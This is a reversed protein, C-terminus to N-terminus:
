EGAEDDILRLEIAKKMARTLAAHLDVLRGIGIAVGKSTPRLQGKENTFYQRVDIINKDQYTSLTTVIVDQRRRNKFFRDVIVPEPLTPRRSM